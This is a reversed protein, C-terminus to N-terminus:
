AAKNSLLKWNRFYRIFHVVSQNPGEDKGDNQYLTTPTQRFSASTWGGM